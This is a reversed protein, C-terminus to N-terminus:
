SQIILILVVLLYFAKTTSNLSISFENLNSVLVYVFQSLEYTLSWDIIM